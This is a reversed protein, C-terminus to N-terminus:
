TSIILHTTPTPTAPTSAMPPISSARIRTSGCGHGDPRCHPAPSNETSEGDERRLWHAADCTGCCSIDEDEGRGAQLIREIRNGVVPPPLGALMRRDRIRCARG